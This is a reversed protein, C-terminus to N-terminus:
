HPCSLDLFSHLCISPPQHDPNRTQKQDGKFLQWKQLKNTYGTEPQSANWLLIWVVGYIKIERSLLGKFSKSKLEANGSLNGGKHIKGLKGSIRQKGVKQIYFFQFFFQRGQDHAETDKKTICRHSELLFASAIFLGKVWRFM